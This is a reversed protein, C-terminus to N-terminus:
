IQRVSAILIKGKPMRDPASQRITKVTHRADFVASETDDAPRPQDQGVTATGKWLLEGFSDVVYYKIEYCFPAASIDAM